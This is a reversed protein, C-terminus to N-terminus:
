QKEETTDQARMKKLRYGFVSLGSGLAAIVSIVLLIFAAPYSREGPDGSPVTAMTTKKTTSGISDTKKTSTTSSTSSTTSSGSSDKQEYDFIASATSDKINYYTNKDECILLGGDKEYTLSKLYDEDDCIKIANEIDDLSASKKVDFEIKVAETESKSAPLPTDYYWDAGVYKANTKTVSSGSPIDASPSAGSSEGETCYRKSQKAGNVFVIRSRDTSLLTSDYALVFMAASVKNDPNKVSATVNLKNKTKDYVGHFHIKPKGNGSTKEEEQEYTFKATATSDKIRYFKDGSECVLVGGDDKYNINRLYRENDCVAIADDLDSLKTGDKVDFEIEAAKVETESPQLVDEQEYYWDAGIYQGGGGTLNGASAASASSGSDVGNSREYIKSKRGKPLITVKDKDTSLKDKDYALVFMASATKSVPNYISATVKLTKGDASLVGHFNIAPKKTETVPAPKDTESYNFATDALGGNKVSYTDTSTRCLLVGGDASYGGKADLFENDACVTLASGNELDAKGKGDAVNFIFTAIDTGASPKITSEPYWDAGIIGKDADLYNNNEKISIGEAPTIGQKIGTLLSKDYKLAFMGSNIDTEPNALKATVTLTNDASSYVCDFKMGPKQAASATLAPFLTLMLVAATLAAIM